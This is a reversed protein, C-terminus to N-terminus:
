NMAVGLTAVTMAVSSSAAVLAATGDSTGGSAGVPICAGNWGNPPSYALSNPTNVPVQAVVNATGSCALASYMESVSTSPSSQLFASMIGAVFPSSMSTGSLLHVATPSGIWDSEIASGPAIMSVCPGFNSYTAFIDRIDSAAVTFAFPSGAPSIECANSVENGASASVGINASHLDKLASDLIASRSGGFSMNVVARNPRKRATSLLYNIGILVQSLPGVNGCDFVRLAIITAEKAVGKSSGSAIGSVHTGHGNCDGVDNETQDPSFNRSLELNIRNSFDVHDVNIGSDL